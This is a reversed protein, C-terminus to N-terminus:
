NDLNIYRKSATNMRLAFGKEDYGVFYSAENSKARNDRNRFDVVMKVLM